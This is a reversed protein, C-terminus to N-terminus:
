GSIVTSFEPNGRITNSVTCIEDEAAHAIKRRTEEDIDGKISFAINFTKVRSVGETAKEGTVDAKLETIRDLVGLQSAAMRASLVLCASLSSYLLDLPNFGPQSPGTVIDIEGQTASTVHPFGTRGLVATAGVPRTRVKLDAM